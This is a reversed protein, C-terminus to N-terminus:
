VGAATLGARSSSIAFCQSIQPLAGANPRVTDCAWLTLGRRNWGLMWVTRATTAPAVLRMLTQVRQRREPVTTV